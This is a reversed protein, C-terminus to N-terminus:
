ESMIGGKAESPCFSVNLCITVLSSIASNQSVTPRVRYALGLQGVPKILSSRRGVSFSLTMHIVYQSSAM